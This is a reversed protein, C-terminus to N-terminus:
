DAGILLRHEAIKEANNAHLGLAGSNDAVDLNTQMQIM